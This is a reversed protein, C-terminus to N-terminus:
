EHSLGALKRLLPYDYIGMSCGATFEIQLAYRGVSVIRTAKVERTNNKKIEHCSACPCNAQVNQLYYDAKAGDNWEITFHFNDKQYINKIFYSM